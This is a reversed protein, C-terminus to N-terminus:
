VEESTSPDPNGWDKHPVGLADIKRCVEKLTQQGFNKVKLLEQKELAVLQGVTFVGRTELANVTRLDLGSDSLSCEM